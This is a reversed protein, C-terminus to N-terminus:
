CKSMGTLRRLRIQGIGLRVPIREVETQRRQAYPASM